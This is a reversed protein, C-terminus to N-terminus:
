YYCVSLMHVKAAVEIQEKMTERDGPCTFEIHGIQKGAKILICSVDGTDIIDIFDGTINGSSFLHKESPTFLDM